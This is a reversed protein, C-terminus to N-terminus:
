HEWSRLLVSSVFLKSLLMFCHCFDPLCLLLAFFVLLISLEIIVSFLGLHIRVSFLGSVSITASILQASHGWEQQVQADEM